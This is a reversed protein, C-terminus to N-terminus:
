SCWSWVRVSSSTSWCCRIPMAAALRDPSHVYLRDVAGAAAQDRLRELAPRVVTSGSYGEDIFCLEEDLKLGDDRIRERLADVQSTITHDKAQQESSVRAYIAASVSQIKMPAGSRDSAVSERHREVPDGVPDGGTPTACGASERAGGTRIGLDGAAGGPSFVRLEAGSQPGSRDQAQRGGHSM